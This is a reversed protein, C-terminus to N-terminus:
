TEDVDKDCKEKRIEIKKYEEYLNTIESWEVLECEEYYEVCVDFYEKAKPGELLFCTQNDGVNQVIVASTKGDFYEVVLVRAQRDLKFLSNQNDKPLKKLYFKTDRNRGGRKIAVNGQVNELNKSFDKFHPFVSNKRNIHSLIGDISIIHYFFSCEDIVERLRDIFDKEQGWGREANLVLSSSRQMLFVKRVPKDFLKTALNYHNKAGKLFESAVTVGFIDIVDQVGLDMCSQYSENQLHLIRKKLEERLQNSAEYPSVGESNYKYTIYRTYGIDFPAKVSGSDDNIINICKGKTADRLGLEYFVNPNLDTLDAIVIDARRLMSIIDKMVVSGYKKDAREVEYNLERAIPEIINHMIDDSRKRTGTDQENLPCIFAIMKKDMINEKRIPYDTVLM